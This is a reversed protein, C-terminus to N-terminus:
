RGSKVIKRTGLERAVKSAWGTKTNQVKGRERGGWPPSTSPDKVPQEWCRGLLGQPKTNRRPRGVKGAGRLAAGLGRKVVSPKKQKQTTKKKNKSRTQGWKARERGKKKKFVTKKPRLGNNHKKHSRKRKKGGHDWPLIKKKLHTVTNM